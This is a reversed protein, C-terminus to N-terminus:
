SGSFSFKLFIEPHTKWSKVIPTLNLINGYCKGKEHWYDRFRLKDKMQGSSSKSKEPKESKELNKPKEPTESKRSM